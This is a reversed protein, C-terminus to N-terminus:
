RIPEATRPMAFVNMLGSSATNVGRVLALTDPASEGLLRRLRRTSVARIAEPMAYSAHDLGGDDDLAIHHPLGRDRTTVPVVIVHGIPMAHYADASIVLCPRTGAQENDVVPDLGERELVLEARAFYVDASEGSLIEKSPSTHLAGM